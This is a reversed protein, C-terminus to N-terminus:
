PRYASSESIRQVNDDVNREQMLRRPDLAIYAPKESVNFTFTQDTKTIWVQQLDTWASWLKKPEATYIGIELPENLVEGDMDSWSESTEMEETKINKDTNVPITVKWTGDPNEVATPGDDGYSFKWWVMRDWQDTILQDYEPGAADRLVNTVTKTTPYPPGKLGYEALFGKMAERMTQPGIYHKLGWLVWDAKNYVLYQQSRAVALPVEKESDIFAMAEMQAITINEMMYRTKDWGYMAEYADTTAYSTLGESLVNVGRSLGPVIQHAFWQHGMEHMTTLAANDVTKIDDVRGPDMVFGGEAYPITGAFAQAFGIFPVEMIRFYDYQYPSFHETYHSLAFQSAEIMHPVTDKHNEAHYVRIPITKGDEDTWSGETVAYDGSLISFFNSIPQNTRYTRCTRGDKTEESILNGPAIPIQPAETCVRGKFDIADAPGTFLAFLNLETGKAKPEPLKTLEGLGLKRRRKSNEIPLYPPGFVPIVRPIGLADGWNNLFTGNRSITSADALRPGHLFVEFDVQAAAGDALPPEFKFLRVGYKNIAAIKDGDSNEGSKVEAAGTITLVRMDDAGTTPPQVYLESISAGSANELSMVGSVTAEQKSPHLDVDVSVARTHPRPLKLEAEFLSEGEAQMAEVTKQNVWDAKDYAQYILTGAGIFGFIALGMIAASVGGINKRINRARLNLDTQLGRRWMWVGLVAFALVFMGWYFNFWRFAIWNNYPSIESVRGPSTGSFGMLPHYFPLKSLIVTVIVLAGAAAIMGVIRNPVFNQVIMALAALFLYNPLQNLFTYRLYLGFDIPPSDVLGQILMGVSMGILSLTIVVGMLALWKSSILPWNRVQTSDLLENFKAGKDRFTIEAAFFAIILLMPIFFSSFGIASM